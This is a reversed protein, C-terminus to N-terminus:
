PQTGMSSHSVWVASVLLNDRKLLTSQELPNNGMRLRGTVLFYNSSIGHLSGDFGNGIAQQAASMQTWPSRQRAQTLQQAASLNMGAVSAALVEASATNVNVTTREPLIVAHPQLRLLTASDWGWAQLDALNRPKFLSGAAAQKMQQALTTAASTPLGLVTLLRTLQTVAQPDIDQGKLLNGLNFKGQADEIRGSLFVQDALALSEADTDVGPQASLFSSLRGEQLPVAWPESLHDASSNRADERLILRSWDTAGMLLWTGQQRQREASEIEILQSQRWLATTLLATVLAVVLMAMLLVAGRAPPRIPPTPTCDVVGLVSRSSTHFRAPAKM